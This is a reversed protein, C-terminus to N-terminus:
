RMQYFMQRKYEDIESQSLQTDDKKQISDKFAQRESRMKALDSIGSRESKVPESDTALASAQTTLDGEKLSEPVQEAMARINKSLSDEM